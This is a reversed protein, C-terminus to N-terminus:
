QFKIQARVEGFWRYLLNSPSPVAPLITKTHITIYFLNNLLDSEKIKVGDVLLSGTFSGSSPYLGKAVGSSTTTNGATFQQLYIYPTTTDALPKFTPQVTWGSFLTNLSSYSVPAPGCIRIAIVSDSLGSWTIAYNLVGGKTDYSVSLSGLGSSPSASPSIQAGTAPIETKVHLTGKKKEDDKECSALNIV